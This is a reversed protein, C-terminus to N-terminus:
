SLLAGLKSAVVVLDDASLTRPTDDARWALTVPDIFTVKAAAAASSVAAASKRDASSFPGIVLVRVGPWAARVATIAETTRGSTRSGAPVELVVATPTGAVADLAGAALVHDTATPAVVVQDGTAVGLQDSLRALDTGVVVVVPTTTYPATPSVGSSPTPSASPSPSPPRSSDQVVLSVSRAPTPHDTVVVAAGALVAAAFLALLVDGLARPVRM